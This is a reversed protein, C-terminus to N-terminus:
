DSDGDGPEPAPSSQENPTEGAQGSDSVAEHGLFQTLIARWPQSPADLIIGQELALEEERARLVEVIM